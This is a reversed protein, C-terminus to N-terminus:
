GQALLKTTNLDGYLHGTLQAPNKIVQFINHKQLKHQVTAM